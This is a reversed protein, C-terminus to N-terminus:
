RSLNAVHLPQIFNSASVWSVFLSVPDHKFLFKTDFQFYKQPDKKWALFKAGFGWVVFLILKSIKKFLQLEM